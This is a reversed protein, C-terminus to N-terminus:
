GFRKEEWFDISRNCGQEGDRCLLQKLKATQM